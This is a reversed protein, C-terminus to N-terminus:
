FNDTKVIQHNTCRQNPANWQKVIEIVKKYILCWHLFSIQKGFNSRVQKPKQCINRRSWLFTTEKSKVLVTTRIKMKKNNWLKLFHHFIKPTDKNKLTGECNIHAGRKRSQTWGTKQWWECEKNWFFLEKRPLIWYWNVKHTIIIDEVAQRKVMQFFWLLINVPVLVSSIM